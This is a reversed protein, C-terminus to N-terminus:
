EKGLQPVPIEVLKILAGKAAVQIAKMMKM